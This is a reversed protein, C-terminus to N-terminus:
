PHSPGGGAHHREHIPQFIRAPRACSVPADRAMTSSPSRIRPLYQFRRDPSVSVPHGLAVPRRLKAAHRRTRIGLRKEPPVLHAGAGRDDEHVAEAGVGGGPIGPERSQGVLMPADDDFELAEPPCRSGPVATPRYRRQGLRDEGEHAAQLQVVGGDDAVGEPARHHQRRGELQVVGATVLRPADAAHDADGAGCVTLGLGEDADGAPAVEGTEGEPQHRLM